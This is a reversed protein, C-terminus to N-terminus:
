IMLTNKASLVINKLIIKLLLPMHKCGLKQNLAYYMLQIAQKVILMQFLLFSVVIVIISVVLALIKLYIGILNYVKLRGIDM